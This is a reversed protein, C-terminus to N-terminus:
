SGCQQDRQKALFQALSHMIAQHADEVIGYNAFPVHLVVDAREKLQGGSFGCLGIVKIKQAQAVALANLINKSNGSSSILVLVDGAQGLYEVQKAFCDEYSFDNALATLLAVNSTLSHVKLTAQSHHHTGKMWDCTLHEAIAASGGNGAVLIQKNNKVVDSILNFAQQLNPTAVAALAQALRQQYDLWCEALTEGKLVQNKSRPDQNMM